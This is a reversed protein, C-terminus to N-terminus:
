TPLSSTTRAKMRPWPLARPAIRPPPISPGSLPHELFMAPTSQDRSSRLHIELAIQILDYNADEGPSLILNRGSDISIDESVRKALPFPANFTNTALNLVQLGNGSAGGSLGM